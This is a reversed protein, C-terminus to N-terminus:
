DHTGRQVKPLPDSWATGLKAFEAKLGERTEPRGIFLRRVLDAQRAYRQLRRRLAPALGRVYNIGPQWHITM